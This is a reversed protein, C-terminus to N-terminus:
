PLPGNLLETCHKHSPIMLYNYICVFRNCMCVFTYCSLYAKIDLSSLSIGVHSRSALFATTIQPLLWVVSTGGPPIYNVWYGWTSHHEGFAASAMQIEFVFFFLTVHMSCRDGQLMSLSLWSLLM